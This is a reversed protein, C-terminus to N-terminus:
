ASKLNRVNYYVNFFCISFKFCAYLHLVICQLSHAVEGVLLACLEGHQEPVSRLCRLLLWADIGRQLLDSPGQTAGDRPDSVRQRRTKPCFRTEFVHFM